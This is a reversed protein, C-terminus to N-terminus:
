TGMRLGSAQERSATEVGVELLNHGGQAGVTRSAADARWGDHAIEDHCAVAAASPWHPLQSSALVSDQSVNALTPPEVASVITAIISKPGPPRPGSRVGLKEDVVNSSRFSRRESYAQTVHSNGVSDHLWRLVLPM